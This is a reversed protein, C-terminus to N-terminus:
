LYPEVASMLQAVYGSGFLNVHVLLPYVQYLLKREEYGPDLPFVQQYGQYFHKSFGGFLETFALEIERDAYSVAPDYIVVQGQNDIMYNGSWLDGHILAPAVKPNLFIDLRELLNTLSRRDRKPLIGTQIALKLQPELRCERYFDVWSDRQQNKQPLRGLFNDEQWGFHEASQAHLSALQQGFRQQIQHSSRKSSSQESIGEMLLYGPCDGDPDQWCRPEPVRLTNTSRLSRLGRAETAFMNMPAHPNWKVFWQEKGAAFRVAQNICGGSCAQENTILHKLEQEIHHRLSQPIM